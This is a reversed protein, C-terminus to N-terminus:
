FFLSSFLSTDNIDIYLEAKLRCVQQLGETGYAGRMEELERNLEEIEQQKGVLEDEMVELRSLASQTGRDCFTERM